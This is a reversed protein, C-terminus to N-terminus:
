RVEVCDTVTMAFVSILYQGLRHEEVRFVGRVRVPGPVYAVHKGEEFTCEVIHQPLPSQGFCCSAIDRVLSFEKVADISGRPLMYGVLDVTRGHLATISAPVQIDKPDLDWASIDEFTLRLPKGSDVAPKKRIGSGTDADGLPVAPSAAATRGTASPEAPRDGTTTADRAPVKPVPDAAPLRLPEASLAFGAWASGVFSTALVIGKLM